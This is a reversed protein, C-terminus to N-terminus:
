GPNVAEVTLGGTGDMSPTKRAQEVGSYLILDVLDRKRRKKKTGVLGVGKHSDEARFQYSYQLETPGCPVWMCGVYM